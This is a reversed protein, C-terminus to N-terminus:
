ADDELFFTLDDARADVEATVDSYVALQVVGDPLRVPRASWRLVRRTPRALELEERAVFPGEEHVHQLHRLREPLAGLESIRECVWTRPQGLLSDPSVGLLEGVAGNAYRVHRSEDYLIVGAELQGLVPALYSLADREPPPRSSSVRPTMSSRLELEGSVRRALAVLQDVEDYGITLPKDDIICLTGLVKGDSTLLPAGAYSGVTGGRVLPNDSFLPHRTADPVILPTATDADVVHRCFAQEIPTGRAALLEGGLGVHAKFWQRHELVLSVLAIPVGFSQATEEVLRQLGEDPPQDDVLGMARIRELRAPNRTAPMSRPPISRTGTPASEGPLQRGSAQLARRFAARLSHAAMGSATIEHIGLAARRGSATTRLQMSSSVVLAPVRAPPAAKRLEELLAFGDLKPLVLDTVLLAPLGRERLLKRAELGDRVLAAALGAEEALAAFTRALRLDPEAVLVYDRTM